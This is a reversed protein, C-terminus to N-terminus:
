VHDLLMPCFVQARSKAVHLKVTVRVLATVLPAQSSLTLSLFLLLLPPVPLDTVFHLPSFRLHSSLYPLNLSSSM